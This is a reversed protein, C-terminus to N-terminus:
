TPALRRGREVLQQVRARTLGTADAIKQYSLGSAHMRARIRARQDALAAAVAQHLVQARTAEVYAAVRDGGWAGDDLFALHAAVDAPDPVYGVTSNTPM